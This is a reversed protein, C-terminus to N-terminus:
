PEYECRALARRDHSGEVCAVFDAEEEPPPGTMDYRRSGPENSPECSSLEQRVTSLVMCRRVWPSFHACAERWLRRSTLGEFGSIPGAEFGLDLDGALQEVRDLTAGCTTHERHARHSGSGSGGACGALPALAVLFLRARGAALM